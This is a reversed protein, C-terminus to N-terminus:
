RLRPGAVFPHADGKAGSFVSNICQSSVRCLPDRSGMRGGRSLSRVVPTEPVEDLRFLNGSGDEEPVPHSRDRSVPCRSDRCHWTKSKTRQTTEVCSGDGM